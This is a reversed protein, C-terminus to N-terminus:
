KAATEEAKPQVVNAIKSREVVLRSEGSQITARDDTLHVIKGIIGGGTIVEDGKKIGKIMEEHKKQQQRQPRLLLFWFIAILAGIQLFVVMLAGGGQQGPPPSLYAFMLPDTM